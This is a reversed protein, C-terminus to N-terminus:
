ASARFSLPEAPALFDPHFRMPHVAARDPQCRAFRRSAETAAVIAAMTSVAAVPDMGTATEGSLMVADAGDLVANAVDTAEARTPRHSVTMSELMETACIVPVDRLNAAEIIDKQVLPLDELPLEVGLDGRAVMVGDAADLLESLNEVARAREIKAVVMTADPLLRRATVIDAAREVFSLAVGDAGAAAARRLDARDRRGLAPLHLRSDPFCVAKRPHLIGGREVEVVVTQDRVHVVRGAIRGDDLLVRDGGRSRTAAPEFSLMLVNLDAGGNHHRPGVLEVSNGEILHVGDPPMGTVRLKPGAIDFLVALPRRLRAAVDRAVRSASARSVPDGHSCNIRVADMGAAVM